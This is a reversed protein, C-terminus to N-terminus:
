LYNSAEKGLEVFPQLVHLRFRVDNFTSTHTVYGFALRQLAEDLFLTVYFYGNFTEELQLKLTAPHEQFLIAKINEQVYNLQLNEEHWQWVFCHHLKQHSLLVYCHNM